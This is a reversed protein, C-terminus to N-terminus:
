NQPSAKNKPRKEIGKRFYICIEIIFKFIWYSIDIDWADSLIQKLMHRIYYMLIFFFTCNSHTSQLITYGRQSTKRLASKRASKNDEIMTKQGAFYNWITKLLSHVYNSLTVKNYILSVLCSRKCSKAVM